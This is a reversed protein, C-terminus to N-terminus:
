STLFCSLDIGSLQIQRLMATTQSIQSIYKLRTESSYQNFYKMFHNLNEIYELPIEGQNIKDWDPILGGLSDLQNTLPILTSTMKAQEAIIQDNHYKFLVDEFNFYVAYAGTGQRPHTPQYQDILKLNQLWSENAFVINGYFHDALKLWSILWSDEVLAGYVQTRNGLSVGVNNNQILSTVLEQFLKPNVVLSYNLNQNILIRHNKIDYNAHHIVDIGQAIGEFTIGGPISQYRDLIQEVKKQTIPQYEVQWYIPLSANNKHFSFDANSETMPVSFLDQDSDLYYTISLNESDLPLNQYVIAAHIHISFLLVILFLFKKM